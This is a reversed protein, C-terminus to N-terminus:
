RTASSVARCWGRCSRNGRARPAPSPLRLGRGRRAVARARPVAHDRVRAQLDLLSQWLAPDQEAYLVGKFLGILVLSFQPTPIPPNWTMVGGDATENGNPTGDHRHSPSIRSEAPSRQPAGAAAGAGTEDLPNPSHFDRHSPDGPPAERKDAPGPSPRRGSRTSSPPRMERGRSQLLRDARDPRTGPPAREGARGPQCRVGVRCPVGRIKGPLRAKDVYVQQVPRRPRVRHRRSGDAQQQTAPLARLRRSCRGTWRWSSRRRQSTSRWSRARRHAQRVALAYQEVERLLQMIRRNEMWAQDDLYRRLQQSLRAVTRQAVEGREALRLARAFAPSRAGAGQGRAARLRDLLTSLEEQRAASMLFDWFARFSRGQDSDSIADRDGFIEELLAGKSGDWM